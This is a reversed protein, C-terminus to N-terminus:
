KELPHKGFIARLADMQDREALAVVQDGPRLITDGHPILTREDRRVAVLLSEQPLDLARVERNAAPSDPGIVAEFVRAGTLSERLRDIRAAFEPRDRRATQYAWIIDRRRLIGIVRSPDLPDTVPLAAVDRSTLRELALTLSEDAACTVPNPTMIEDVAADSRDHLIADEADSRSVIGILAHDRDIVPLSSLESGTFLDLLQSASLDPTVTQLQPTMADRAAITDLLDPEAGLVDVGRRALKLTYISNRGLFESLIASVVSAVMLPGIIRYDGTMEFLIIIATMPAHAVGAFLASMGVLAYAGAPATVTPWAEHMVHGFVAGLMAGIFLSPAFIGGSGGSGLTLSTAALKLILLAGLTALGIWGVLAAETVDYGIGFIQPFALGIIGVALGGVAPKLYDPFRWSEFLDGCTYLSWIFGRAVFAASVGLALYLPFEWASVLFYRPVHLAPTDGLYMHSIVVASVSSIVVFGFSRSTFNRLIVELAFLVGGVPANFTAAIGGAAGCAVLLRTREGPLRLARALVSGLGAGIQVAPGHQGASGGSGITLAAAIGKILAVRARIKGGQHAVALMIEPVGHGRAERAVFFVLPGVLLGGLSPLIITAYPSLRRLAVGIVDFFLTRSHELLWHFLVAGYGAAIGVAVALLILATAAPSRWYDRARAWLTRGVASANGANNTEEKDTM